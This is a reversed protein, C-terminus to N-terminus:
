LNRTLNNTQETMRLGWKGNPFDMRNLRIKRNMMAVGDTMGAKLRSRTKSASHTSSGADLPPCQFLGKM